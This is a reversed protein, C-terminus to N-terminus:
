HAVVCCYRFQPSWVSQEMVIVQSLLVLVMLALSEKVLSQSKQIAEKVIVNLIESLEEILFM